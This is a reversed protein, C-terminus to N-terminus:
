SPVLVVLHERFTSHLPTSFAELKIRSKFNTLLTGDPLFLATQALFVTKGRTVGCKSVLGIEVSLYFFGLLM